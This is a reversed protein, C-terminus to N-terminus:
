EHIDNLIHAVYASQPDNNRIYRVCEQYRTWIAALRDLMPVSVHLVLWNTFGVKQTSM